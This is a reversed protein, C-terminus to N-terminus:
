LLQCRESVINLGMRSLFSLFYLVVIKRWTTLANSTNILNVILFEICIFQIVKDKVVHSLYVMYEMRSNAERQFKNTGNWCGLMVVWIRWVDVSYSVTNNSM